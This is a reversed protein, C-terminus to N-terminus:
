WSRLSFPLPTELPVEKDYATKNEWTFSIKCPQRRSQWLGYWRNASLLLVQNGGGDGHCRGNGCKEWMSVYLVSTCTLEQSLRRIGPIGISEAKIRPKNGASMPCIGYVTDQGKLIHSKLFKPAAVVPEEFHDIIKDSGNQPGSLSYRTTDM